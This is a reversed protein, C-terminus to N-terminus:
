KVKGSDDPDQWDPEYHRVCFEAGTEGCLVRCAELEDDTMTDVVTMRVHPVYQKVNKTFRLIAPLAELGYVPHCLADYKEPTSANLSISISDLRGAFLPATDKRCILDSLGNTNLRLCTKAVGKLRDALELVDDLRCTPEGFGCFVIQGYSDLDRTQLEAWIEDVTPERDLWLSGSDGVKDGTTRLCFECRNPCRNTLNIYLNNHYVYTITM